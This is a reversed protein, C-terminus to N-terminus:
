YLGLKRLEEQTPIQWHTPTEFFTYKLGTDCDVFFSKEGGCYFGIKIEHPSKLYIYQSTPPREEKVSIWYGEKTFKPNDLM